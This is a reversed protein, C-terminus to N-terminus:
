KSKLLCLCFKTAIKDDHYNKTLKENNVIMIMYCVYTFWGLM